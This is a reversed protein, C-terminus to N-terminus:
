ADGVGALSRGKETLEWDGRCGCACGTALGREAFRALKAAVVKYPMPEPYADVVEGTFLWRGHETTLRDIILLLTVDDIDSAKPKRSGVLRPEGVQEIPVGYHRAAEERLKRAPWPWDGVDEASYWGEGRNSGTLDVPLVWSRRPATESGRPGTM